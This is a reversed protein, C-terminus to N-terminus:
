NGVNRSMRATGDQGLVDGYEQTKRADHPNIYIAPRPPPILSDAPRSWFSSSVIQLLTGLLAVVRLAMREFRYCYNGWLFKTMAKFIFTGFGYSDQKGFSANLVQM